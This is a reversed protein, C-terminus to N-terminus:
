SSERVQSNGNAVCRDRVLHRDTAIGPRHTDPPGDHAGDSARPQAAHVPPRVGASGALTGAPLSTGVIAPRTAWAGAPRGAWPGDTARRRAADLRTV